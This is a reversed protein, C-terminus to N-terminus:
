TGLNSQNGAKLVKTSRITQFTSEILKVTIRVGSFWHLDSFIKVDEFSMLHNHNTM